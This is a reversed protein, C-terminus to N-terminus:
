GVGVRRYTDLRTNFAYWNWLSGRAVSNALGSLLGHSLGMNRLDQYSEQFWLGRWTLTVAVTRVDAAQKRSRIATALDARREYKLVKNQHWVQVGTGSVVQVDLITAKRGAGEGKVAVLDQKLSGESLKYLHEKETEFAKEKLAGHIRFVVFDHRLLRGEHTRPCSQIVHALTEAPVACARCSTDTRRGRGIRKRTPLANIRLKLVQKLEKPKFGRPDRVFDTSARCGAALRLKAGDM